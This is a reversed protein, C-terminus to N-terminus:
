DLLRQLSCCAPVPARGAFQLEFSEFGVLDQHTFLLLIDGKEKKNRKKAIATM